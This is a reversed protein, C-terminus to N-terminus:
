AEARRTHEAPGFVVLIELPEQVDVFRHEEWAPVFVVSGPRVGVSGTPTWLTARGASVVYVEDESHPQQEDTGGVPIRYCGISLDPVRLLEDYAPAHTTGTPVSLEHM